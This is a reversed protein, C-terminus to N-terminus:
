YPTKEEDAGHQVLSTEIDDEIQEVQRNQKVVIAGGIILIVLVATALLAWLPSLSTSSQALAILIVAAIIAGVWFPLAVRIFHFFGLLISM